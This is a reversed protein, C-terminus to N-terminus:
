LAKVDPEDDGEEGAESVVRLKFGGIQDSLVVIKSMGSANAEFKLETKKVSLIESRVVQNGEPDKLAVAVKRTNGTVTVQVSLNQGAKLKVPVEAPVSSM